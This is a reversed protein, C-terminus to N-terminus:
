SHVDCHDRGFARRDSLGSAKAVDHLSEGMLQGYASVGHLDDQGLIVYETIVTQPLQLLSMVVQPHRKVVLPDYAVDVEGEGVSELAKQDFGM